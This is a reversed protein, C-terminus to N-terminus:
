NKRKVLRKLKKENFLIVRLTEGVLPGVTLVNFLLKNYSIHEVKRIERLRPIFVLSAFLRLMGSIIFVLVYSSWFLSNHKAVLIGLMSGAIIGVGNLFNYYMVCRARNEARTSDLLYNFAVLDFGGWAFGAFANMVLLYWLDQRIVWVFPFLPM